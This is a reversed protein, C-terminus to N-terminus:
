LLSPMRGSKRGMRKLAGHWFGHCGECLMQINERSPNGHDGDIHHRHIRRM